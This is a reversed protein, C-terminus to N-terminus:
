TNGGLEERPLQETNWRDVAGGEARGHWPYVAVRCRAIVLASGM